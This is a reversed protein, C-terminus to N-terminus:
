NLAIQGPDMGAEKWSNEPLCLSLDLEGSLPMSWSVRRKRYDRVKNVKYLGDEVVFSPSTKCIIAEQVGLGSKDQSCTWKANQILCPDQPFHLTHQNFPTDYYM